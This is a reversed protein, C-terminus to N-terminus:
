FFIWYVPKFEEPWSPSKVRPYIVKFWTIGEDTQKWGEQKTVKLLEKPCNTPFLCWRFAFSSILFIKKKKKKFLNKIV